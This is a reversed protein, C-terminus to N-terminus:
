SEDEKDSVEEVVIEQPETIEEEPQEIVEKGAKDEVKAVPKEAKNVPRERKTAPYKKKKDKIENPDILELVAMTAGDGLRDGLKIVRTYGGTPKDKYRYAIDNILNHAVERNFLFSIIMRKSALDGKMARTIMKEAFPKVFKARSVTTIIRKKDFLSTLLNRLMAKRHDASLSLKTVKKQHRM